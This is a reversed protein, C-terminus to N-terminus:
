KNKHPIKVEIKKKNVSVLKKLELTVNRKPRFENVPKTPIEGDVEYIYYGKEGNISTIYQNEGVKQVEVGPLQKLADFLSDDKNIEVISEEIFPELVKELSGINTSLLHVNGIIRKKILGVKELLKIHRSVVPVSVGLEKALGSLHMERNLLIKMIKIRTRSSLAKFLMNNSMETIITILNTLKLDKQGIDYKTLSLIFFVVAVNITKSILM